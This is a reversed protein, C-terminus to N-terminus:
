LLGIRRARARAGGSRPLTGRTPCPTPPQRASARGSPRPRSAGRRRSAPPFLFAPRPPRAELHWGAKACRPPAGLRSPAPPYPFPHPCAESIGARFSKEWAFYKIIRIGQLVEDMKNSRQAPGGAAGRRAGEASRRGRPPYQSSSTLRHSTRFCPPRARMRSPLLPPSCPLSSLVNHRDRAAHTARAFPRAQDKLKMIERNLGSQIKSIKTNIPILVIMMLVGAFVSAGVQAAAARLAGGRGRGCLRPGRGGRKGGGGTREM